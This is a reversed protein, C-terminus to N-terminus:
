NPWRRPYTRPAQAVINRAAGSPLLSQDLLGTRPPGKHFSLEVRDVPFDELFQLLVAADGIHLQGAPDADRRRGAQAPHAGELLGAVDLAVAGQEIFLQEAVLHRDEGHHVEGALGLGVQLRELIEHAVLRQHAFAPHQGPLDVEDEFADGGIELGKLGEHRFQGGGRMHAVDLGRERQAIGLIGGHHRQLELRRSLSYGFCTPRLRKIAGETEGFSATGEAKGLPAIFRNRGVFM